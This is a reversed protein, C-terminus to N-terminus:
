IKERLVVKVHSSRRLIPKLGEVPALDAGNVRRRKM